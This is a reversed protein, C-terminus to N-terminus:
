SNDAGEADRKEQLHIALAQRLEGESGKPQIKNDRLEDQLQDVDLGVVHEYIDKDLDLTAEEPEPASDDVGEREGGPGYLERNAAVESRRDRALQYAVESETWLHDNRIENSM